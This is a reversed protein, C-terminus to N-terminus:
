ASRLPRLPHLQVGLGAAARQDRRFELVVQGPRRDLQHQRVGVGGVRAVAVAGILRERRGAFLIDAEGGM